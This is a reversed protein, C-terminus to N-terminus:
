DTPKSDWEMDLVVQRDRRIRIKLEEVRGELGGHYEPRACAATLVLLEARDKEIRKQAQRLVMSPELDPAPSVM